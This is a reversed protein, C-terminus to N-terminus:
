QCHQPEIRRIASRTAAAIGRPLRSVAVATRRASRSRVTAACRDQGPRPDLGAPDLNLQVYRSLVRAHEESEVLVGGFRGQSLSGTQGHNKNFLTVYGTEFAQMGESLNPQPTRPFIQFHNDLLAFAFVRWGCQTAHRHFVRFWEQQDHETVVINCRELGGQTVRYVGDAIKLRPQRPM